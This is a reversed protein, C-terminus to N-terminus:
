QPEFKRVRLRYFQLPEQPDNTIVNVPPTGWIDEELVSWVGSEISTAGELTYLRWDASPWSYRQGLIEYVRNTAIEDMENTYVVDYYNTGYAIGIEVALVSAANTPDTGAIFESGNDSGDDDSDAERVANTPGGFHEFEWANPLGDGDNDDTVTVLWTVSTSGPWVGDTVEVALQYNGADGLMTINTYVDANDGIPFGDLTWAYMLTGGNPSSATVSFLNTELEGITVTDNTPSQSLIEVPPLGIELEFREYVANGDSDRLWITIPFTGTETPTGSIEGGPSITLGAPLDGHLAIAMNFFSGAAVRVVNSLGSPVSNQNSDNNGWSTVSGDAKLALGHFSGASVAVINSLNALASIQGDSDDGWGRVAGDSLLALSFSGGASIQTVDELDPPVNTEGRRGGGWATVTGDSKLALAFERSASIAVVGALNTPVDTQGYRNDGWGRVVGNSLLALGYHNGASVAVVGPFQTASSNGWGVITGDSQLALNHAYGASIQTVNSLGGPVTLQGDGNDGWAAVTGDSKLALSHLYGGSVDVADTLNTPVNGQEDENDGWVVVRPAGWVYTGSGYLAQLTVSYAAGNTAVPLTKPMIKLDLRLLIVDETQINYDALTQQGELEVGQFFLRQDEPPIGKETEIQDRVSAVTDNGEVEFANTWQGPLEVFIQMAFAAHAWTLTALTWVALLRKM